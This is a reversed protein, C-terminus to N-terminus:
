SKLIKKADNSSSYAIVAKVDEKTFPKDFYGEMGYKIAKQKYEEQDHSTVAM